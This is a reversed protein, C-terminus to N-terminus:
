EGGGLNEDRATQKDEARLKFVKDPYRDHNITVEEGRDATRYAQLPKKNFENATLRMEVEGVEDIDIFGLL